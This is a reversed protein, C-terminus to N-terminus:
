RVQATNAITIPRHNEEWSIVLPLQRVPKGITFFWKLDAGITRSRKDSTLECGADLAIRLIASRRLRSFMVEYRLLIVFYGLTINDTLNESISSLKLPPSCPSEQEARVKSQGFRLRGAGCVSGACFQAAVCPIECGNKPSRNPLTVSPQDNLAIAARNTIQAIWFRRRFGSAAEALSHTATVAM